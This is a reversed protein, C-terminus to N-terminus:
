IQTDNISISLFQLIGVCIVEIFRRLNAAIEVSRKPAITLVLAAASFGTSGSLASEPELTAAGGKVIPMSGFKRFSFIGPFNWRPLMRATGTGTEFGVSPVPSIAV